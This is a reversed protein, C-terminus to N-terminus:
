RGYLGTLTVKEIAHTNLMYGALAASANKDIDLKKVKLAWLTFQYRHDGHGEPPCAGGFDYTGYDNRLQLAGEPLKSNASGANQPLEKLDAPLNVVLWHWWGSGTPADPDYATIAISQTDKPLNKWQLAPSKNEGSCGFGNYEFTKAIKEGDSIDPSTLIMPAEAFTPLTFLGTLVAGTLIQNLLKKM